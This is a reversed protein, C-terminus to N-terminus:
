RFLYNHTKSIVANVLSLDDTEVIVPHNMTELLIFTTKNSINKKDFIMSETINGKLLIDSLEKPFFPKFWSKFSLIPEIEVDFGMDISLQIEALCGIYVAVGHSIRGYGLVREIAHATTHGFNLFARIGSEKEDRSVIESKIKASRRILELVLDEEKFDSEIVKRTLDFLTLDSISAYKLVEGLGCFYEQRDLTSLFHTFAFIRDPQYFSGIRNKGTAHNVGTKGGISSDVMALLTTPIHILHVGRLTTAAVFGTLDGVVGGGVAIVLDNRKIDAELLQNQLELWNDVSKSEEGRAVTLIQISKFPVETLEYMLSEIHLKAVYEDIIIFVKSHPYNSALFSAFADDPSKGIQIHYSLETEIKVTIM